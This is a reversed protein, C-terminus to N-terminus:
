PSLDGTFLEGDAPFEVIEIHPWLKGTLYVRHNAPDYAIGNSLTTSNYSRSSPLFPRLDIWGDVVGTAPDIVAIRDELLVNAWVKGEIWELENLQRIPREGDRVAVTSDTELTEPDLFRLVDSGDSLILSEGDTALGWGEGAYRFTGVQELTAAAYIFGTQERWTLQYIRDGLQAIGEGFFRAPLNVRIEHEGTARSVIRLTSTGYGGTSEVLNAGQVFLGQTSATSDHFIRGESPLQILPAALSPELWTSPQAVACSANALALLLILEPRPPRTM